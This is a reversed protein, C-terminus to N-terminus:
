PQNDNIKVGLIEDHVTQTGYEEHYYTWFRRFCKTKIDFHWDSDGCHEKPKCEDSRLVYSEEDGEKWVAMYNPNSKNKIPKM